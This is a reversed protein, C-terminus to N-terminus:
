FSVNVYHEGVNFNGLKIDHIMMPRCEDDVIFAYLSVGGGCKFLVDDGIYM